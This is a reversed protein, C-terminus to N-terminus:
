FVGVFVADILFMDFYIFCLDKNCYCIRKSVEVSRFASAALSRVCYGILARAGRM